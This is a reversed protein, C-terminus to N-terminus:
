NKESEVEQKQIFLGRELSNAIKEIAKVMKYMMVLILIFISVYFGPILLTFILCYIGSVNM